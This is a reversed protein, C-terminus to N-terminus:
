QGLTKENSVVYNELFINQQYDRPTRPNAKIEFYKYNNELRYAFWRMTRMVDAIAARSVGYEKALDSQREGKQVRSFIDWNRQAREVKRAEIEERSRAAVRRKKARVKEQSDARCKKCHRLGNWLYVNKGSLKHGNVCHTQYKKHGPMRGREDARRINEGPTVPDLHAPNVCAPNCCLHDIHLNNPIPGVHYEYSWRHAGVCGAVGGPRFSGYGRSKSGTWVWCGNRGDKDVKEFFRKAPDIAVFTM